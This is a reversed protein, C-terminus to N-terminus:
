EFAIDLLLLCHHADIEITSTSNIYKYCTFLNDCYFLYFLLSYKNNSKTLRGEVAELYFKWLQRTKYEGGLDWINLAFPLVHSCITEVNYIFTPGISIPEIVSTGNQNINTQTLLNKLRILLTSKGVADLGVLVIRAM